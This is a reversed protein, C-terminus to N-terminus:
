DCHDSQEIVRRVVSIGLVCNHLNSATQPDAHTMILANRANDTWNGNDPTRCKVGFMVDPGRTIFSFYYTQQKVNNQFM